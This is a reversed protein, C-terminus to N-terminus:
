QFFSFVKYKKVIEKIVTALIIYGIMTAILWPFYFWPLSSMGLARGVATFALITGVAIGLCTVLIVILSPRSEIFPLKPTRLLHIVLTQSWLSEVFWGTNFLAMFAISSVGVAGYNGGLVAPCIIFFMILYTTIDFISSVPGFCLMFNGISSADWKRPKKLYEKDVRDWPLSVCSIDYILNLMLIQLPLMPLFPLFISAILVSLMNGFNSSATMRIYKMTNGFTRRGEIVGKELVMLDKQLLIIDASEKSIEVATDVSIGVDAKSIAGADNIGDGLFGVVHHKRLYSVIMTKQNSSLKAFIKNKAVVSYVEEESMKELDVGSIVEDEQIGVLNYISKTVAENDGSLIKVDVGNGKLTEIAEKASEKPPDLFALFGMLCMESEDSVSFVGEESPNNKQSIAIVRMGKNNLNRVTGLIENKLDDTLPEIKGKYEAVSSIDLIEEVAGK